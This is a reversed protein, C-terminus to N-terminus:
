HRKANARMAEKSLYNLEQIMVDEVLKAGLRQNANEAIRKSIKPLDQKRIQRFDITEEAYLTKFAEDLLYLDPKVSMAKMINADVSFLFQAVIYGQLEGDAIVPVSIMRPKIVEYAAAKHGHGDGAPSKAASQWSVAAYASALTVLCVWVGAIIMKIM